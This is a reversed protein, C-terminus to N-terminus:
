TTSKIASIKEKDTWVSTPRIPRTGQDGLKPKDITILPNRAIILRRHLFDHLGM